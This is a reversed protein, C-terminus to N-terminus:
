TWYEESPLVLKMNCDLFSENYLKFGMDYITSTVPLSLNSTVNLLKNAVCEDDRMGAIFWKLRSM